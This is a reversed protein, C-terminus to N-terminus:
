ADAAPAVTQEEADASATPEKAYATPAAPEGANAASEEAGTAPAATPEEVHAAPAATPEEAPMLQQMLQHQQSKQM